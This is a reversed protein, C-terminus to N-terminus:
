QVQIVIDAPMHGNQPAATIFAQRANSEQDTPQQPMMLSHVHTTLAALSPYDFALTSPLELGLAGGIANSLEVASLSDFAGPTFCGENGAVTLCPQRIDQSCFTGRSVALPDSLPGMELSFVRPNSHRCSLNGIRGQFPHLDAFLMSKGEFADDGAIDAAATRVKARVSELTMVSASATVVDQQGSEPSADVHVAHASQSQGDSPHLFAAHPADQPLEEQLLDLLHWPGKATNVQM